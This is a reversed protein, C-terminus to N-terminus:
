VFAATAPILCIYDIWRYLSAANYQVWWHRCILWNMYLSVELFLRYLLFNIHEWCFSDSLHLIWLTQLLEAYSHLVIVLLTFWAVTWIFWDSVNVGGDFVSYDTGCNMCTGTNLECV